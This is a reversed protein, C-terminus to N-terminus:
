QATEDARPRSVGVVHKSFFSKFVDKQLFDKTSAFQCHKNAPVFNLGFLKKGESNASVTIPFTTCV